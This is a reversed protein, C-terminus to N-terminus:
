EGKEHDKIHNEPARQRIYKYLHTAKPGNVMGIALMKFM